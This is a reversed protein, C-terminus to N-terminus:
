APRAVWVMGRWGNLTFDRAPDRRLALRAMVAQSRRNDAATYSQVESLGARKFADDLAASAAESAYGCGWARRAFRWGIQVHAGLPHHDSEPTLGAYGLLEGGQATVAWRSFGYRAFTAVYRDFKADSAAHDIPGGLDAMVEPDAHLAAFGARDTERWPRLRLRPTVITM